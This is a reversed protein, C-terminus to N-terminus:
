DWSWRGHYHVTFRSMQCVSSDIARACFSSDAWLLVRCRLLQRQPFSCLSVCEASPAGFWVRANALNVRVWSFGTQTKSCLLVLHRWANWGTSSSRHGALFGTFAEWLSDVFLLVMFVRFRAAGDLPQRCAEWLAYGPIYIGVVSGSKWRGRFLSRGWKWCSGCWRSSSHPDLLAKQLWCAGEEDCLRIDAWSPRPGLAAWGQGVMEPYRKCPSRFCSHMFSWPGVRYNESIPAALILRYLGEGLVIRMM